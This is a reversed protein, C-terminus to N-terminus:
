LLQSHGANRLGLDAISVLYVLYLITFWQTAVDVGWVRLQLPLLAIQNAVLCLQTITTLSFFGWFARV